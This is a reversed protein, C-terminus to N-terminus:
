VAMKLAELTDPLNKGRLFNQVQKEKKQLKIMLWFLKSYIRDLVASEYKKLQKYTLIRKTNM